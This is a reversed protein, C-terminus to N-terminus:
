GSNGILGFLYEADFEVEYKGDYIVKGDKVNM